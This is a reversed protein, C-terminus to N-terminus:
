GHQELMINQEEKEYFISDANRLLMSRFVQITAIDDGFSHIIGRDCFESMCRRLYDKTADYNVCIKSTKLIYYHTVFGKVFEILKPVSEQHLEDLVFDQYAVKQDQEVSSNLYSRLLALTEVKLEGDDQAGLLVYPNLIFSKSYGVYDRNDYLEKLKPFSSM